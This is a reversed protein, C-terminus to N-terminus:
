KNNKCAELLAFFFFFFREKIVNTNVRAADDEAAGGGENKRQGVEGLSLCACKSQRLISASLHTISPGHSDYIEGRIGGGQESSDEAVASHSACPRMYNNRLSASTVIHFNPKTM